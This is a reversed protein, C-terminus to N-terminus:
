QYAEWSVAWSGGNRAIEALLQRTTGSAKITLDLVPAANNCGNGATISLVTITTTSAGYNLNVSPPLAAPPCLNGALNRVYGISYAVGADLAYTSRSDQQVGNSSIFAESVLRAGAWTILLFAALFAMVYLLAQGSQRRYRNM